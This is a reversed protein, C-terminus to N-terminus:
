KLTRNYNSLDQRPIYTYLQAQITNIKSQPKLIEKNVEVLLMHIYNYTENYYIITAQLTDKNEKELGFFVKNNASLFSHFSTFDKYIKEKENGYKIINSQIIFPNSIEATFLNSLSEIPHKESFVPLYENNQITLYIDSRFNDTEFSERKQLYLGSKTTYIQKEFIAPAASRKTTNQFSTLNHIFEKELEIKTMGKILGINSPFSFSLQNKQPSIWSFTFGGSNSTLRFQCTNLKAIFRKIEKLQSQGENNNYIVKIQSKESDFINNTNIFLSLIYTELFLYADKYKEDIQEELSLNLGIFDITKNQNKTIKIQANDYYSSMGILLSSQNTINRKIQSQVNNDLHMYIAQARENSFELAYSNLAMSLFLFIYIINKSM